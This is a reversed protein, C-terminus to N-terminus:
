SYRKECFFVMITNLDYIFSGTHSLNVCLYVWMELHFFSHLKYWVFTQLILKSIKSLKKCCKIKISDTLDTMLLYQLLWKWIYIELKFRPDKTMRFALLCLFLFAGNVLKSIVQLRPQAFLYCWKLNVQHKFQNKNIWNMWVKFRNIRFRNKGAGVKSIKHFENKHNLFM